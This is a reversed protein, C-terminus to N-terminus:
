NFFVSKSSVVCHISINKNKGISTQYGSPFVDNCLIPKEQNVFNPVVCMCQEWFMLNEKETMQVSYMHIIDDIM